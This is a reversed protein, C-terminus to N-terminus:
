PTRKRPTQITIQESKSLINQVRAKPMRTLIKKMRKSRAAAAKRRVEQRQPIPTGEKPEREFPIGERKRAKRAANSM